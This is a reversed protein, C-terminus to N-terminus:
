LEVTCEGSCIGVTFHNQLVGLTLIGSPCAVDVTSSAVIGGKGDGKEDDSKKM